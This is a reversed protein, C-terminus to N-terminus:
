APRAGRQRRYLLASGLLMLALTGPEPAQGNTVTVGRADANALFPPDTHWNNLWSGSFGTNNLIFGAKSGYLSAADGGTVNFLMEITNGGSVGLGNPVALSGTLFMGSFPSLGSPAGGQFGTYTISFTGSSAVGFGNVIADLTFASGSKFSYSMGPGTDITTPLGTMHLQDTSANYQADGAGIKTDPYQSLSIGPNLSGPFAIAGGSAVLALVGVTFGKIGRSTPWM